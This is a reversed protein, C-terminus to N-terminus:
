RRVRVTVPRTGAGRRLGDGDWQALFLTSRRVRVRVTFSGDSATEVTRQRWRGRTLSAITVEEDPLRPTLRGRLTVAGPRRLRRRSPRLTLSSAELADGGTTTAFIHGDVNLSLATGPGPAVLGGVTLTSASILQPRWTRGGDSTRLARASDDDADVFGSRATAFSVSYLERTGIARIWRWSRGANSTRYLRQGARGAEALVYGVRANVFDADIIRRRTPRRLRRWRRGENTSRALARGGFAVVALGAPDLESLRAGRLARASVRRLSSASDTSRRVGGSGTVLVMSPSHAIM